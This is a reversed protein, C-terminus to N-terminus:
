EVPTIRHGHYMAACTCGAWDHRKFLLNHQAVDLPMTVKGPSRIRPRAHAAAVDRRITAQHVVEMAGKFIKM